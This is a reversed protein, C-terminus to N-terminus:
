AAQRAFSAWVTKFGPRDTTVGWEQSLLSVLELGRGNIAAASNRVQPAASMGTLGPVEDQAQDEVEMLLKDRTGTLTITYDTRAHLIVNTALESVALRVTDIMYSLDHEVLSDSVFGRAEGASSFQPHLSATCSWDTIEM